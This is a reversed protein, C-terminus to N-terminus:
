REHQELIQLRRPPPPVPMMGATPSSRLEAILRRSEESTARVYEFPHKHTLALTIAVRIQRPPRRVITEIMM